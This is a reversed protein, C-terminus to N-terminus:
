KFNMHHEGNKVCVIVIQFPCFLPQEASSQTIIEPSISARKLINNCM